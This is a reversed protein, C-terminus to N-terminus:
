GIKRKLVKSSTLASAIAAPIDGNLGSDIAYGRLVSLSVFVAFKIM